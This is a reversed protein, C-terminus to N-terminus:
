LFLFVFFFGLFYVFFLKLLLGWENGIHIIKERKSTASFQHLFSLYIFLYIFLAAELDYLCTEAKVAMNATQRAFSPFTNTKIEQGNEDSEVPKWRLTIYFVSSNFLLDYQRIYVGIWRENTPRWFSTPFHEMDILKANM